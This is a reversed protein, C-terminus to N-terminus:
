RFGGNYYIARPVPPLAPQASDADPESLTLSDEAWQRVRAIARKSLESAGHREAEEELECLLRFTSDPTMFPSPPLDTALLVILRRMFPCTASLSPELMFNTEVEIDSAEPDSVMQEARRGWSSFEASGYIDRSSPEEAAALWDRSM